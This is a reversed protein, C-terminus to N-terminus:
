KKDDSGPLKIDGSKFGNGFAKEMAAIAEKGATSNMYRDRAEKDVINKYATMVKAESDSLKFEEKITKM